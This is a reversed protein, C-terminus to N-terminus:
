AFGEDSGEWLGLLFDASSFYGRLVLFRLFALSSPDPRVGALRFLTREHHVIGDFMASGEPSTPDVPVVFAGSEQIWATYADFAACLRRYRALTGFELTAVNLTNTLTINAPTLGFDVEFAEIADPCLPELTMETRPAAFSWTVGVCVENSLSRRPLPEMPGLCVGSLVEHFPRGSQVTRLVKHIAAPTPSFGSGALVAEALSKRNPSRVLSAYASKVKHLDALLTGRHPM